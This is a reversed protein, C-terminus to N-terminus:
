TRPRGDGHGRSHNTTTDTYWCGTIEYLAIWSRARLCSQAALIAAGMKGRAGAWLQVRGATGKHMFTSREPLQIDQASTLRFATDQQEIFENSLGIDLIEWNGVHPALEPQFFGLKPVQFSITRRPRIAVAEGMPQESFLGSAIDVSVVEAKSQNIYEVIQKPVGNLPRNLGSGFMADIVVSDEPLEPFKEPEELNETPYQVRLKNLKFDMSAREEAGVIWARVEYQKEHLLRGIALGDGGNNGVGCFIIIASSVEYYECFSAVFAAAAREMLDISSVPENEITFADTARIQEATLIKM